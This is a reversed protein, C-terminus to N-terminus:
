SQRSRKRFYVVLSVCLAIVALTSVAAFPVTLSPSDSTESSDSLVSIRNSESYTVFMKGRGSDYAIGQPQKELAVNAIVANTNDSIV